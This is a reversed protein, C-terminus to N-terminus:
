RAAVYTSKLYRGWFVLGEKVFARYSLMRRKAKDGEVPKSFIILRSASLSLRDPIVLAMM